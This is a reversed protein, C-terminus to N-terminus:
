GQRESGNYLYTHVVVATVIAFSLGYTLSYSISIYM